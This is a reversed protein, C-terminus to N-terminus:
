KLQAVCVPCVFEIINIGDEGCSLCILNEEGNILTLNGNLNKIRFIRGMKWRLRMYLRTKEFRSSIITGKKGSRLAILSGVYITVLGCIM